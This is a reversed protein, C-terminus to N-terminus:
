NILYGNRMFRSQANSRFAIMDKWLNSYFEINAASITISEEILIFECNKTKLFETLPIFTDVSAILHNFSCCYIQDNEQCNLMLESLGIRESDPNPAIDQYIVSCGIGELVEIQPRLDDTSKYIVAYGIKKISKSIDM